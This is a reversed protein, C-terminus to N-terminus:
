ISHDSSGLHAWCRSNYSGKGRKQQLEYISIKRSAIGLGLVSSLTNPHEQSRCSRSRRYRKALETSFAGAHVLQHTVARIIKFRTIRIARAYKAPTGISTM